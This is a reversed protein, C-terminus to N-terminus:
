HISQLFTNIKPWLTQPTVNHWCTLRLSGDAEQRVLTVHPGRVFWRYSRDRYIFSQADVINVDYIYLAERIVAEM